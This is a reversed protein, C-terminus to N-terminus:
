IINDCRICIKSYNCSGCTPPGWYCGCDWPKYDHKTVGDVLCGRAKLHARMENQKHKKGLRHAERIAEKKNMPAWEEGLATETNNTRASLNSGWQIYTKLSKLIKRLM